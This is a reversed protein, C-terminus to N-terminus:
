GNKAPPPPPPPPPPPSPPTPKLLPPPFPNPTLPPPPLDLSEPWPRKASTRDREEELEDVKRELRELRLIIERAETM